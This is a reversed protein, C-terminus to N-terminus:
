RQMSWVLAMHSLTEYVVPGAQRSALHRDLRNMVRNMRDQYVENFNSPHWGISYNKPASLPSGDWNAEFIELMENTTVYDVLIGNDPVELLSVVSDGTRLIDDNSPYYPQSTDTITAWNAANWEYLVGNQKGEWEEMRAWNNASTDAVYGARALARLTTLDATWGGARFSTPKGLGNAAFLDDAHDLLTKFEDESYASCMVTYGSADGADYVTSPTTLCSLGASEVFSCYPHIHLGIEDGYTDRMGRVWEAQLSRREESMDPDTFTYPGVFHTIKLGPHSEHLEEQLRLADDTNDPDDWDTSVVVYLPHSRNFEVRAFAEDGGDAALLLEHAGPGVDTLDLSAGFSADLRRLRQGAGGDLWLDVTHTGAPARVEIDLQDQGPTLENGILYWAQAREISYAPDNDAPATPPTDSPGESGGCAIAALIPVALLARM